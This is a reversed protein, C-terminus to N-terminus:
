GIDERLIEIFGTVVPIPRGIEESLSPIHFSKTGDPLTREMSLGIRDLNVTRRTRVLPDRLLGKEIALFALFMGFAQDNELFPYKDAQVSIQQFTAQEGEELRVFVSYTEHQSVFPM